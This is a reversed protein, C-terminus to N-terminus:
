NLDCRHPRLLRRLWLEIRRGGGEPIEFHQQAKKVIQNDEGFETSDNPSRNLVYRNRQFHM